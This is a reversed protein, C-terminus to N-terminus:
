KTTEQRSGQTDLQIHFDVATLYIASAYTDAVDTGERMLSCLLISSVGAEAVLSSVATDVDFYLHKDASNAAITQTASTSVETPFAQGIDAWSYTLTWVVDGTNNDPPTAHVHFELDTGIKYRHTLQATFLIKNDQSPSFSLVKCGRYAADTPASAGKGVSGLNVQQDDWVSEGLVLTKDTGCTITFDGTPTITSIEAPTTPDTQTLVGSNIVVPEYAM